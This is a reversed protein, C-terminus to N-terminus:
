KATVKNRSFIILRVREFFIKRPSKIKRIMSKLRSFAFNEGQSFKDRYLVDFTGFFAAFCGYHNLFKCYTFKHYVSYPQIIFCFAMSFYLICGEGVAEFAFHDGM